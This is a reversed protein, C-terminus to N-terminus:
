NFYQAEFSAIPKKTNDLLTLHHEHISYYNTLALVNLFNSEVNSNNFCAIQTSAIAGFNLSNGKVKFKGTFQNCSGFGKVAKRNSDLQIFAERKQQNTMIVMDENLTMLKWYTNSLTSLPNVSIVTLGEYGHRHSSKEGSKGVSQTASSLSRVISSLKIHITNPEKFPNIQETSTMLLENSLSIKARLNYRMNPKILDANYELNFKYPPATNINKTISAIQTSAVDMKSVDELIIELTAGPPLLKRELYYVQGALTKFNAKLTSNIPTKISQCASLLLIMVISFSLQLIQTNM